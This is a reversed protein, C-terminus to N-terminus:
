KRFYARVRLQKKPTFFRRFLRSALVRPGFFRGLLFALADGGLVAALCVFFAHHVNIVGEYALAGASILSLDEPIPLGLGCLLLVGALSYYVTSPTASVLHDFLSQM